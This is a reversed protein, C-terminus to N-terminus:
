ASAPAHRQFGITVPLIGAFEYDSQLLAVEDGEAFM